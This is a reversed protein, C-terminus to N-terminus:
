DEDIKTIMMQCLTKSVIAPYKKAYEKLEDLHSINYDIVQQMKVENSEMYEKPVILDFFYECLEVFEKDFEVLLEKLEEPEILKRTILPLKYSILYSQNNEITAGTIIPICSEADNIGLNSTHFTARHKLYNYYERIKSYVANKPSFRNRLMEVIKVEQIETLGCLLSELNCEKMLKQYLENTPLKNKNGSNDYYLWLM